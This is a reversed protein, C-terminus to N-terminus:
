VIEKNLEEVFKKTILQPRTIAAGVVIAFAGAKICKAALEPTEINGEAIIPISLVAKLQEILEIDPKPRNVTYETYSSLTTSVLDFGIREAEVAEDFSSIDAMILGDYVERIKNYFEQLTSGDPRERKTADVAIIEAEVPLLQIVEKMTPTIYVNSTGYVKKNIAIMPLDVNKKIEMCDDFGNARIGVAGGVLAARAMKMMVYSGHLPEDDLAQCSVIIGGKLKDLQKPV